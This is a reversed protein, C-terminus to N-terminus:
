FQDYLNTNQNERKTDRMKKKNIEIKKKKKAKRELGSHSSRRQSACYRVVSCTIITLYM